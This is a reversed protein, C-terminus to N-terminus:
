NKSPEVDSPVIGTLLPTAERVVDVSPPPFCEIVATYLPSALKAPLV